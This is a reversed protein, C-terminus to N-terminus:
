SFGDAPFRGGHQRPERDREARGTARQAQLVNFVNLDQPDVRGFSYHVKLGDHALVVSADGKPDGDREGLRTRNDDVVATRKFILLRLWYTAITHSALNSANPCIEVTEVRLGHLDDPRELPSIVMIFLLSGPLPGASPQQQAFIMLVLGLM